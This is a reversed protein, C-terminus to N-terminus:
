IGAHISLFLDETDWLKAATRNTLKLNEEKKKRYDEDVIVDTIKREKNIILNSIILRQLTEM